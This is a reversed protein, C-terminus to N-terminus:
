IRAGVGNGEQRGVQRDQWRTKNVITTEEEKAEQVRESGDEDQEHM